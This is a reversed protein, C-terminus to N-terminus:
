NNKVIDEYSQKDKALQDKADKLYTDFTAPSAYKDEYMHALPKGELLLAYKDKLLLLNDLITEIKRETRIFPAPYSSKRVQSPLKKRTDAVKKTFDKGWKAFSKANSDASAQQYNEQLEKYLEEATSIVAELKPINFNATEEIDKKTGVILIMEDAASQNGTKAIIKKPQILPNFKATVLYVGKPPTESLPGITAAFDKDYGKNNVTIEARALVLDPAFYHSFENILITGNPFDSKGSAMIVPGDERSKIACKEMKLFTVPTSTQGAPQNIEPPPTLVAPKAAYDFPHKEGKKLWREGTWVYGQKEMQQQFTLAEKETPTVLKGQYDVLGKDSAAKRALVKEAEEKDAPTLWKDDIKVLGKSEMRAEFQKIQEEPPVVAPQAPTKAPASAPEIVPEKKPPTRGAPTSPTRDSPAPESPQKNAPQPPRATPKMLQYIGWIIFVAIIVIIVNRM